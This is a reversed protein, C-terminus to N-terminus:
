LELRLIILKVLRMTNTLIVLSSYYRMGKRHTSQNDEMLHKGM